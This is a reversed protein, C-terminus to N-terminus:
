QVLSYLDKRGNKRTTVLGKSKLSSLVGGIQKVVKDVDAKDYDAIVIAIDEKSKGDGIEALAYAIKESVTLSSNYSEAVVLRPHRKIPKVVPAVGFSKLQNKFLEITELEAEYEKEADKKIKEALNISARYATEIENKRTAVINQLTELETKILQAVRKKSEM